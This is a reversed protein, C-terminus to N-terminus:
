RVLQWSEVHRYFTSRTVTRDGRVGDRTVVAAEAGVQAARGTVWKPRRLQGRVACARLGPLEGIPSIHVSNAKNAFIRTDDVFGEGVLGENGPGDIRAKGVLAIGLDDRILPMPTAVGGVARKAAAAGTGTGYIASAASREVPVYAIEVDLREIRMLRTLVAALGSDRGLVILRPDPEAGLPVLTEDIEDDTPIPAASSAPLSALTIPVPVDGCRLVFRTM